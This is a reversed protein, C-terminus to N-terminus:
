ESNRPIGTVLTLNEVMEEHGEEAETLNQYRRCESYQIGSNFVMTEFYQPPEGHPVGLWVTSVSYGGLREQKVVTYEPNRLLVELEDAQIKRGLKDRYVQQDWWAEESMKM